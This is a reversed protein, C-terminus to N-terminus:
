KFLLREKLADIKAADLGPAKKLDDITKFGGQMDRYAVVEKAVPDTVGFVLQLHAAEAKNVELLALNAVLYDTVTKWEAETAMAGFDKMAYVVDVWGDVTRPADTMVDSGHCSTCVAVVTPKGSAEPLKDAQAQADVAHASTIAFCIVAPPLILTAFGRMRM